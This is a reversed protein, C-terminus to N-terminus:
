HKESGWRVIGNEIDRKREKAENDLQCAINVKETFTDTAEHTYEYLM